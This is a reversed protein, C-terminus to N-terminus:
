RHDPRKKGHRKQRNEMFDEFKTIQEENLIEIVQEELDDQLNAMALHRTEHNLSRDEMLEIVEEFHNSYIESLDSKQEKSLLIVKDLEDVMNVIQASDPPAPPRHQRQDPQAFLHGYFLVFGSFLLIITHYHKSRSNM